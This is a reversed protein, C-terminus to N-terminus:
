QSPSNSIVPALGLQKERDLTRQIRKALWLDKAQIQKMGEAAGYLRLMGRAWLERTERKQRVRERIQEIGEPCSACPKKTKTLKITTAVTPKSQDTERGFLGHSIYFWSGGAIGLLVILTFLKKM